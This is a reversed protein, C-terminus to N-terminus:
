SSYMSYVSFMCKLHNLNEFMSIPRYIVSCVLVLINVEYYALLGPVHTYTGPPGASVTPAGIGTKSPDSLIFTHGYAPFGM